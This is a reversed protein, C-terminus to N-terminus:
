EAAHKEGTVGGALRKQLVHAATRAAATAQAAAEAVAPPVFPLDGAAAGSPCRMRYDPPVGADHAARAFLESRCAYLLFPLLILATGRM